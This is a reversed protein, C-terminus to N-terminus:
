VVGGWKIATLIEKVSEAGYSTKAAELPTEGELMPHPNRLWKAADAETEFTDCAMQDLELLRLVGEAAHAPLLKDKSALRSTTSRDLDLYQAVVGKGLGLYDSLPELAKSSIGRKVIQHARANDIAFSRNVPPMGSAPEAKILLGADGTDIFKWVFTRSESRSLPSPRIADGFNKSM